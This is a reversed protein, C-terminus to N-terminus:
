EVKDESSTKKEAVNKKKIDKKKQIKYIAKCVVIAIVTALVFIGWYPILVLIAVIINELLKLAGLLNDVFGTAIRDWVTPEEQPTLRTVENINLHITSYDVQNDYVLLRSAYAQLEYRVESLRSEVAIIDEVSEAKELLSFLRDQEIELAKKRSEVDVYNLTIDEVTESKRVINSIESVENVFNDLEGSPIRITLNSRRSEDYRANGRISSNEIYGKLEKVRNEIKEMLGDFDETEADMSVTKILKRNSNEQQISENEGGTEVSAMDYQSEEKSEYLGGSDQASTNKMAAATEDIALNNSMANGGCGTLFTVIFFLCLLVLFNRKKKM